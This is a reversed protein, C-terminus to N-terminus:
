KQDIFSVLWVPDTSGKEKEFRWIEEFSSFKDNSGKVLSDDRNSKVYCCRKVYINVTIVCKDNIVDFNSFEMKQVDIDTNILSEEKKIFADYTDKLQKFIEPTVLDKIESVKGAGLADFLMAYVISASKKFKEPDFNPFLARVERAIKDEPDEQLPEVEIVNELSKDNEDHKEEKEDDSSSKGDFFWIYKSYKEKLESDLESEDSKHFLAYLKFFLFATVIVFFIIEGM